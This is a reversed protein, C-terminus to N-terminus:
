VVLELSDWGGGIKVNAEFGLFEEGEKSQRGRGHFVVGGGNIEFLELKGELM